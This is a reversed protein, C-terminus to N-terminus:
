CWQQGGGPQDAAKRGKPINRRAADGAAIDTAHEAVMARPSRRSCSPQAPLQLTRASCRARPCPAPVLRDAALLINYIRFHMDTPVNKFVRHSALQPRSPSAPGSISAPPPPISVRFSHSVAHNWGHAPVTRSDSSLAPM